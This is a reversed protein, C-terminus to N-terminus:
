IQFILIETAPHWASHRLGFVLRFAVSNTAGLEAGYKSFVHRLLPATRNKNDTICTIIFSVGCPGVGEYRTIGGAKASLARTIAREIFERSVNLDKAKALANQLARNTSNNGGTELAAKIQKGVVAFQAARKADEAGKKHRISHWKSHGAMCRKMLSCLPVNRHLQFKAANVRVSGVLKSGMSFMSM